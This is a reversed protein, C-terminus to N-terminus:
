VLLLMHCSSEFVLFIVESYGPRPVNVFLHNCLGLSYFRKKKRSFRSM